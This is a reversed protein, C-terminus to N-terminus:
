KAAVQKRLLIKAFTRWTKIDSPAYVASALLQRMGKLRAGRGIWEIAAQRHLYALVKRLTYPESKHDLPAIFPAVPTGRDLSDSGTKRREAWLTLAARAYYDRRLKSSFTLSHSNLRYRYLAEPVNDLGGFASLRLLLDLDESVPIEPRYGGAKRVWETRMTCTGPYLGGGNRTLEEMVLQVGTPCRDEYVRRGRPTTLWVWSGVAALEPNKELHEVQRALRHPHSVDDSDMVAVYPANAEELARNRAHCVGRNETHVVRMRPDLIRALVADTGDTSGDDVVILELDKLSQNLISQVAEAVYPRVNYAAMIVSVM